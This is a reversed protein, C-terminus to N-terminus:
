AEAEITVKVYKGNLMELYKELNAINSAGTKTEAIGCLWPVLNMKCEKDCGIPAHFPIRELKLRGELAVIKRPM